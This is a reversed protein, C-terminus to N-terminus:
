GLCPPIGHFCSVCDRQCHERADPKATGGHLPKLGLSLRWSNDDDVHALDGVRLTEFGDSLSSVTGRHGNELIEATAEDGTGLVYGGEISNRWLTEDDDGEVAHLLCLGPGIQRGLLFNVGDAEFCGLRAREDDLAHSFVEEALCDDALGGRRAAEKM